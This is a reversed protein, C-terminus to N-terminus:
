TVSDCMYLRFFRIVIHTQVVPVYWGHLHLWVHDYIQDTPYAIIFIRGSGVPDVM